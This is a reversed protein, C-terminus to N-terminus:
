TPFRKRPEAETCKELILGYVGASRIQAFPVRIAAPEVTDHLICGLAFIDAQEPTNRFDSAQEPAAYYHSGYASRSSTLITTDRAIPLILGFDALVWKSEVLLVNASSKGRM